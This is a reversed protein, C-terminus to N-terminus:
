WLRYQEVVNGARDFRRNVRNPLEIGGLREATARILQVADRIHPEDLERSSFRLVSWGRRTLLNNRMNDEVVATPRLHWSDGDCEVDVGARTCLVAFDLCYSKTAEAVYYQREAPIQERRFAEWLQDELPSEHYLDNIEGAAQLKAFTTPIFVIRRGRASPVPRDLRRIAGLRVRFYPELARPHDPEHPLLDRRLARDIGEIPAVFHIAWKHEGSAATHYFALWRAMSLMEPATRCPIRYWHERQAIAFDAPSPVVAVLTDPQPFSRQRVVAM